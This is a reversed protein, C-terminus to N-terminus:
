DAPVYFTKSVPRGNRLVEVVYTGEGPHEKFYNIASAKTHVPVGNISLLVDNKMFGRKAAMSDEPVSTLTLQTKGTRKNKIAAVPTSKLEQEWDKNWYEREKRSLYFQGPKIEVTEEPPEAFKEQVEEPIGSAGPAGAAVEQASRPNVFEPSLAEEQGRYSFIVQDEEIRLVKGNFPHADYPPKLPDGEKSWIDLKFPKEADAGSKPYFLRVRSDEPNSAKLIVMVQVVDSIPDDTVQITEETPGAEEVQKKIGSIPAKWLAAYDNIDIKRSGGSDQREEGQKLRNIFLNPDTSRFKGEEKEKYIVLFLFSIGFIILINLTWALAKSRRVSMRFFM